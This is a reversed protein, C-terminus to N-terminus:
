RDFVAVVIMWSDYDISILACEIITSSVDISCPMQYRINHRCLSPRVIVIIITTLSGHGTSRNKNIIIIIEHINNSHRAFCALQELRILVPSMHCSSSRRYPPPRLLPAQSRQKSRRRIEIDFQSLRYGRLDFLSNSVIDIFLRM